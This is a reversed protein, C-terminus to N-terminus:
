TITGRDASFEGPGAYHSCRPFFWARVPKQASFSRLCSRRSTASTPPFAEQRRHRASAVLSISFSEPRHRVTSRLLACKVSPRNRVSEPLLWSAESSQNRISGPPFCSAESSRNLVSGQIQASSSERSSATTASNKRSATAAWEAGSQHKGQTAPTSSTTHCAPSHTASAHGDSEHRKKSCTVTAVIKVSVKGGAAAFPGLM